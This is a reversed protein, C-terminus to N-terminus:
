LDASKAQAAHWNQEFQTPCPEVLINQRYGPKQGPAEYRIAPLAATGGEVGWVPGRQPRQGCNRRRSM